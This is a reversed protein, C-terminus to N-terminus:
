SLKFDIVLRTKCVYNHYLIAYMCALVILITVHVSNYNHEILNYINIKRGQFGVSEARISHICRCTHVVMQKREFLGKKTM